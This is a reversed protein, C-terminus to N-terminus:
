HDKLPLALRAGAAAMVGAAWFVGAAGVLSGAAGSLMPIGVSSANNVIVRMAVAEGYRHQPALRHLLSMVMPQTSGLSLGLLASCLGMALPTQVLPYVAFLLATAAMAALLVAWERLQAAVLPTLLRVAAAGIGFAGLISGIVSAPVGREHGLVPVLFTHVDWCCSLLGTVLLLRRLGAHRWLDRVSRGSTPVEHPPAAPDVAGRVALWALLPLLALGVFAARFGAGDILLGAMLPGLVNSLALGIALWAFAERLTAPDGAVRPAHRQVAIVAVGGAGGTLLASVCLVPFVPWAAAMACAAMAVVVAMALPRKLGSRECYRGAPLALFVQALAFLAILGGVAAEGHGQRLSQLPAAMRLGTVSANVFLLALVLRALEGAPRQFSAM